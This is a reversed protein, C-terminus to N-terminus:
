AAHIAHFTAQQSMMMPVRRSEGRLEDFGPNLDPSWSSSRFPQGRGADTLEPLSRQWDYRGIARGHKTVTRETHKSIEHMGLSKISHIVAQRIALNDVPPPPFNFDYGCWSVAAVM